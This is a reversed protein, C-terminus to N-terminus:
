LINGICRFCAIQRKVIFVLKACHLVVAALSITKSWYSSPTPPAVRELPYINFCEKIVCHFVLSACFSSDEPYSCNRPLMDCQRTSHFLCLTIYSYHTITIHTKVPPACCSSSCLWLSWDTSTICAVKLSESETIMGFWWCTM